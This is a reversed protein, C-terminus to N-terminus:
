WPSCFPDDGNKTILFILYAADCRKSLATDSGDCFGTVVVGPHMSSPGYAPPAKAWGPDEYKGADAGGPSFDFMLFTWRGARTVASDDGFVGDFEPQVFFPYKATKEVAASSQPLGVLTCEAGVMWRSGKDDITETLLITHSTGDSIATMPLDKDCPFMAGDPHMAATGYPPKGAPNSAMLLSDRTSAGMGKYNTFAFQPPNAAANRFVKNTNAPCVLEPLSRNMADLLSRDGLMVADIDGRSDSVAKIPLTKYLKDYDMFPLIRVLFSYGGVTYETASKKYTEASPPLANSYTSAYNQVALGIQKANNMCRARRDRERQSQIFPVLVILGTVIIIVVVILEVLTFARATQTKGAM